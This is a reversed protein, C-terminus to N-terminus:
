GGRPGAAPLGILALGAARVTAFVGVLLEEPLRLVQAFFHLVVRAVQGLWSLRLGGRPGLARLGPEAHTAFHREARGYDRAGAAHLGAGAHGPRRAYSGPGRPRDRPEPHRRPLIDLELLAVRVVREVICRSASAFGAHRRRRRTAAAAGPRALLFVRSLYNQIAPVIRHGAGLRM